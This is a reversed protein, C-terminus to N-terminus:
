TMMSVGLVIDEILVFQTGIINVTYVSISVFIPITRNYFQMKTSECKRESNLKYQLGHDYQSLHSKHVVFWKHDILLEVIFINM